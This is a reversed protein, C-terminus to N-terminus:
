RLAGASGTGVQTGGMNAAKGAAHGAALGTVGGRMAKGNGLKPYHEGMWEEVKASRDVLVLETSTGKVEGEAAKRTATLRTQVGSGFGVLFERKSLFKQNATLGDLHGEKAWVERASLAQLVLSEYLTVARAVDSEHGIFYIRKSMTSGRVSATLFRVNGMGEAVGQGIYILGRAWSGEVLLRKEIIKEGAKKQGKRKSDLEADSIGWKVMLAEAKATLQEAEAPFETSEAKALLAAIKEAYNPTTPM